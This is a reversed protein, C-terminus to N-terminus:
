HITNSPVIECTAPRPCVNIGVLVKVCWWANFFSMSPIWTEAACTTRGDGVVEMLLAIKNGASLSVDINGLDGRLGVYLRAACIEDQTKTKGAVAEAQRPEPYDERRVPAWRDLEDLERTEIHSDVCASILDQRASRSNNRVLTRKCM